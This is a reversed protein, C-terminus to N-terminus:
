ADSSREQAPPESSPRPRVASWRLILAVSGSGLGAGIADALADWGSSTRGSIWGQYLEDGVGFLAALLGGLLAARATSRSAALLAGLVAYEVIHVLKDANNEGLDPLDEGPISSLGLMALMLALGALGSAWRLRSM